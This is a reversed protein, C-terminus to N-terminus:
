GVNIITVVNAAVAVMVSEPLRADEAVTVGVSGDGIPWPGQKIEIGARKLEGLLYPGLHRVVKGPGPGSVTM